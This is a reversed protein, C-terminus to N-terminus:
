KRIWNILSSIFAILIGFALYAMFGSYGLSPLDFYTSRLGSFNFSVVSFKPLALDVIYLTIINAIFRFLGMTALNLPLLLLNVIPRITFNALGLAAGTVLVGVAYNEFVLGSAIQTALYLSLIGVGLVRLIRKM